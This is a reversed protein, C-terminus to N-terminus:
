DLTPANADAHHFLLLSRKKKKLLEPDFGNVLFRRLQLFEEIAAGASNLKIDLVCGRTSNREIEFVHLLELWRRSLISELRPLERKAKKVDLFFFEVMENTSPSGVLAKVLALEEMAFIRLNGALVPDSIVFHQHRDGFTTEGLLPKTHAKLVGAPAFTLSTNLHIANM